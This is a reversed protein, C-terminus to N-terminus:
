GEQPKMTPGTDEDTKVTYGHMANPGTGIGQGTEMFVAESGFTMMGPHLREQDGQGLKKLVIREQAREREGSIARIADVQTTARDHVVVPTSRFTKLLPHGVFTEDLLIRRLDPHGLFVISSLDYVERELWNASAYLSVLSAIEPRENPTAVRMQLLWNNRISRFQYIAERHEVMDVGSITTLVEFGLSDRLVRVVEVIRERPVTIGVMGDVMRVKPVSQGVVQDVQSLAGLLANITDRSFPAPIAGTNGAQGPVLDM